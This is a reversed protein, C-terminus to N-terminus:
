KIHSALLKTAETMNGAKLADLIDWHEQMSQEPSCVRQYNMRMRLVMPRWLNVLEDGGAKELLYKHFELDIEAAETFHEQKLAANMGDLYDGLEEFDSDDLKGELKQFAFTEINKRLTIMLDQIEPPLMENVTVGCNRKSVLLGEKTLQLLVDRIPGRSVGFREALQEERLRQGPEMEGGIVDTRIQNAIQERIPIVQTKNLM